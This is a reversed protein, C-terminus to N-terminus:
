RIGVIEFEEVASKFVYAFQSNATEDSFWLFFGPSQLLDKGNKVRGEILEGDYFKIHVWLWQPPADRELFRLEDYQPDGNFEKVFFVAKLEDASFLQEKGQRDILTVEEGVFESRSFGPLANGDRLRVVVKKLSSEDHM